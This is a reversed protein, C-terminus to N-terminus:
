TQAGTRLTLDVRLEQGVGVMANEQVTTQFGPAEARVTYNGPTLSPANYEGGSDTTLVRSAGREVDTVTVTANAIAGGTQDTIAGNIRGWNLQAFVPVCCLLLGLGVGMTKVVKRSVGSQLHVIGSTIRNM